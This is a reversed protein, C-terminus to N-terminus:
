GTEDESAEGGESLAGSNSSGGEVPLEEGFRDREPAGTLGAHHDRAREEEVASRARRDRRYCRAADYRAPHATLYDWADALANKAIAKLDRRGREAESSGFVIEYESAKPPRPVAAGRKGAM